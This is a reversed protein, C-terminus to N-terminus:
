QLSNQFLFSLAEHLWSTRFDIGAVILIRDNHLLVCHCFTSLAAGHFVIWLLLATIFVSVVVSDDDNKLSYKWSATTNSQVRSYLSQIYHKTSLINEIVKLCYVNYIVNYIYNSINCYASFYILKLLLKFVTWKVCSLHLLRFVSNRM